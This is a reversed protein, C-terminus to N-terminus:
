SPNCPQQMAVLISAVPLYKCRRTLVATGAVFEFIQHPTLPTPSTSINKWANANSSRVCVVATGDIPPIYRRLSAAAAASRSRRTRRRQLYSSSGNLYSPELLRHFERSSSNYTVDLRGTCCDVTSAQQVSALLQVVVLIHILDCPDLTPM